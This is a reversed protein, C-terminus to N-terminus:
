ITIAFAPDFFCQLTVVAGKHHQGAGDRQAIGDLIAVVSQELAVNWGSIDKYRLFARAHQLTGIAGIMCGVGKTWSTRKAIKIATIFQTAEGFGQGVINDGIKIFQTSIVAADRQFVDVWADGKCTLTPAQFHDVALQDAFPRAHDFTFVFQIAHAPGHGHSLM